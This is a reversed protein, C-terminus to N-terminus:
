GVNESWGNSRVVRGDALTLQAAAGDFKEVLTLADEVQLIYLATSLGDAIAATPATVSVSLYTTPSEGTQPDLIHHMNGMTHGSSSSTALAGTTLALTDTTRWIKNPDRLGIRWPSGNAKPGTARFEGLNILTHRAGANRFLAAIRDTIIGQAIGNLTLSMGDRMSVSNSARRVKSFGVTKFAQQFNRGSIEDNKEGALDHRRWISQVTPDFAGSSAEHLKECLDLAQLLDPPAPALRGTRNLRVLASNPTHLSFITELRSLEALAQAFLQASDKDSFGDLTISADAGLASGEWLNTAETTAYAPLPALAASAFLSLCRRRSIESRPASNAPSSPPHDHSSM